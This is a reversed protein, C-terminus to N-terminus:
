DNFSISPNERFYVRPRRSLHKKPPHYKDVGMGIITLMALATGKSIGESKMEEWIDEFTIPCFLNRAISEYTIKERGFHSGAIFLDWGLAFNPSLKTRLFNSGFTGASPGSYNIKKKFIHKATQSVIVNATRSMFVTVQSIGSLPDITRNGWKIKGFMSDMPNWSVVPRDKDNAGFLGAGALGVMGYATLYGALSRAYEQAILKRARASGEGKIIGTLVPQFLALQFRSMVFRPSWFPLSLVGVAPEGWKGFSGRGSAVNVWNALLKGEEVNVRGGAGLKICLDDFVQARIMNLFTVYSRESAGVGYIHRAWRGRFPEEMGAVDGETTTLKLGCESGFSANPRNRLYDNASLLGKESMTARFMPELADLAILPHGAALVAGQRGIASLDYATRVSRVFNNAEPVADMIRQAANWRAREWKEKAIRFQKKEQEIEYKLDIAKKDMVPKDRETSFDKDAIRQKWYALREELVQHYKYNPREAERMAERAEQLEKLRADRAAIRDSKPQAQEESWIRGAALDDTLKRISGDLAKVKEMERYEPTNQLEALKAKRQDRQALLEDIRPTSISAKKAKGEVRGSEIQQDLRDIDRLLANERIRIDRGRKAGTVDRLEDRQEKFRKIADQKQETEKSTISPSKEGYGVDGSDIEKELRAIQRDMTKSMIELKQEDSLTSKFFVGRYTKYLEDRQARLENLEKDAVVSTKNKVIPERLRIAKDLDNIRNSVSRKAADLSTRRQRETVKQVESPDNRKALKDLKKLQGTLDHIVASIEDRKLPRFRGSSSMAHMTQQRTWDKGMVQVLEGHVADVVKEPEREGGVVVAKTIRKALRGVSEPNESELEIKPAKGTDKLKGWEERIPGEVHKFAKGLDRNAKSLVETLTVAKEGVYAAVLKGAARILDEQRRAQVQPDYIANVLGLEHLANKVEGVAKNVQKRARAKRTLGTAPTRRMGAVEREAERQARALARNVRGQLEAAEAEPVLKAIKDATQKLDSYEEPTLQSGKATRAQNALNGLTFDQRLKQQRVNGWQGWMTGETDTVEEVARLQHYILDQEGSLRAAEPLNGDKQAKVLQETIHGFDNNVKRYHVQFIAEEDPKLPRPKQRLEKVLDIPLQPNQRIKEEAESIWTEVPRGPQKEFPDDGRSERLARVVAKKTSTEYPNESEQIYGQGKVRLTEPDVGHEASAQELNARETPSLQRSRKATSTLDFARGPETYPTPAPQLPDGTPSPPVEGAPPTEVPQPETPTPAPVETAPPQEPAGAPAVPAVEGGEGGAKEETQATPSRLREDPVEPEPQREFESRVREAFAKRQPAPTGAPLGAGEWQSRTPADALAIMTSGTPNVRVWDAISKQDFQTAIISRGPPPLSAQYMKAGLADEFARPVGIVAVPLLSQKYSEFADGVIKRVDIGGKGSVSSAVERATSDIAAAAAMTGAGHFLVNKAYNKVLADSITKSVEEGSGLRPLLKGPLKAFLLSQLTASAGATWNATTEPIGSDVLADRTHQFMGPTFTAATSLGTATKAASVGAGLLKATAGAAKGVGGAMYLEPVMGAARVTAEMPDLWSARSDAIPDDSARADYLARAFKATEADARGLTGGGTLKEITAGIGEVASLTSAGARALFGMSSTMKREAALEQVAQLVHGRDAKPVRKAVEYATGISPYTGLGAWGTLPDAAMYANVSRKYEAEIEPTWRYDPFTKEFVARPSTTDIEEAYAQRPKDVDTRASATKAQARLWDAPAKDPVPMPSPVAPRALLPTEVEEWEPGLASPKPQTVPAPGIDEWEPGLIGAM